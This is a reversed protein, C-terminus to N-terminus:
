AAIGSRSLFEAQWVAFPVEGATEADITRATEADPFRLGRRYRNVAAQSKGIKSALASESNEERGLFQSLTERYTSMCGM